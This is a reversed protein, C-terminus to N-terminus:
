AMNGTPTKANATMGASLDPLKLAATRQALGAERGSMSEAEKRVIAYLALLEEENM